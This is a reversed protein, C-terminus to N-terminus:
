TEIKRIIPMGFGIALALLIVIFGMIEMTAPAGIFQATAGALLSGAPMLGRDLMYLGMVRGRLADPVMVQILANTTIICLSQCFGVAVLVILALPFSTIWSFVVLFLGLAAIACLLLLGRRRFLESFSVLTFLGLLAGVAPAAMLFGLGEPGVRLVDKQFVPMLTQYPVAFIRPVLDAILLALIAPTSWVYALGEKLNAFASARRAETPSPPFSILFLTGLVALYAGGQVFFNGAAGFAAILMGGLAPGLVKNTNFAMSNLTVANMLDRRPVINPVVSQRVPENFSWAIGTVLTVAFLHWVQLLGAASLVGVLLATVVLVWQTSVLLKRRDMRDAAVGALPSSVLFPLMRLGNMMGLMAPSRTLEYMLWGLTVQQIWQGASMFFTGAWLYRFDAHRLSSFTQSNFV